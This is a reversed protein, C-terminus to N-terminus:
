RLADWVEPVDPRLTILQRMLDLQPRFALLAQQQKPSIKLAWPNALMAEITGAAQLAPLTTKEGWGKCGPVGDGSDGVLTQFDIWQAPTLGFHKQLAAANWWDLSRLGDNGLIFHRLITVQDPVLCQNLDKDPSAIVARSGAAIADRAVTALCDDAEYGDVACPVAITGLAAPGEDLVAQLGAPKPKRHAKYTPYLDHRFSRRDFCAVVHSPELYEVLAELRRCVADLVGRGNQAHWLCCIWNSADIGLFLRM